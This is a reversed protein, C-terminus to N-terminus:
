ARASAFRGDRRSDRATFGIAGLGWLRGAPGGAHAGLTRDTWQSFRHTSSQRHQRGRDRDARASGAHVGRVTEVSAAIGVARAPTLVRAPMKRALHGTRAM